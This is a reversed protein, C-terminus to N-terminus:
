LVACTGHQKEQTSRPPGREALSLGAHSDQGEGPMSSRPKVPKRRRQLGSQQGRRRLQDGEIVKTLIVRLTMTAVRKGKLATMAVGAVFMLLVVFKM